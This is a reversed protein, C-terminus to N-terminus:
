NIKPYHTKVKRKLAKLAKDAKNVLEEFSDLFDKADVETGFGNSHSEESRAMHGLMKAKGIFDQELDYVDEDVKDNYEAM